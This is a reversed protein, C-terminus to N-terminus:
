GGSLDVTTNVTNVTIKGSFTLQAAAPLCLLLLIASIRCVQRFQRVQRMPFFTMPFDHRTGVFGDPTRDSVRGRRRFGTALRRLSGMSKSLWHHKTVDSLLTLMQLGRLSVELWDSLFAVLRNVSKRTRTLRKAVYTTANGGGISIGLAEAKSSFPITAPTLTVALPTSLIARSM